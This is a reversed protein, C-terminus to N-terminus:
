PALWLGVEEGTRAVTLRVAQFRAKVGKLQGGGKRPLTWPGQPTFLVQLRLAQAQAQRAMMAPSWGEPLTGEIRLYPLVPNGAPDTGRPAGQTIASAGGALFPTFNLIFTGARADAEAVQLLGGTESVLLSWTKGDAAKRYAQAARECDAGGQSAPPCQGLYHEVFAGASPLVEAGDRLRAFRPDDEAWAAVAGLALLVGLLRM